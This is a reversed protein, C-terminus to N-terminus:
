VRCSILLNMYRSRPSAARVEEQAAKRARIVEDVMAMAAVGAAKMQALAEHYKERAASWAREDVIKGDLKPEHRWM